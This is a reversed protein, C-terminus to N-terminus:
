PGTMRKLAEDLGPMNLGGMAEGMAKSHTERAKEIAANTASTILDEVFEADGRALLSPDIRCATMQLTATMEVTVLGGGATGEVKTNRLEETTQQMKEGIAKANGMLSMLNGLGQFM